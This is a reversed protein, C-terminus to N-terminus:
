ITRSSNLDLDYNLQRLTVKCVTMQQAVQVLAASDNDTPRPGDLPEDKHAEAMMHNQGFRIRLIEKAVLYGRDQELVTCQQISFKAPGGFQHM